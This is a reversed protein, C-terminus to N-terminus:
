FAGRPAETWGDPLVVWSEGTWYRIHSGGSCTGDSIGAHLTVSRALLHARLRSSRALQMIARRVQDSGAVSIWGDCGEDTPDGPLPATLVHRIKGSSSQAFVLATRRHGRDCSVVWDSDAASRVPARFAVLELRASSDTRLDPPAEPIRCGLRLTASRIATPLTDLRSAQAVAGHSAGFLTLVAAGLLRRDVNM